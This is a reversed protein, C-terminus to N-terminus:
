PPTAAPDVYRIPAGVPLLDSWAGAPCAAGVPACGPEGPFHAEGAPCTAAGGAPWPDCTGDPLERWGAACPTLSFAVPAEPPVVPFGADPAGADPTEAGAGCAALLITIGCAVPRMDVMRALVRIPQSCFAITPTRSSTTWSDTEM